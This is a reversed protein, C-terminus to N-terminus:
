RRELAALTYLDIVSLVLIALPFAVDRFAADELRLTTVLIPEVVAGDALLTGPSLFVLAGACLAAWTLGRTWERVYLHGAGPCLVALLYAPWTKARSVLDPSPREASLISPM